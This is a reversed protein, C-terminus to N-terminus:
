RGTEVLTNDIDSWEDAEDTYHVPVGYDAVTFSGDSLRFTKTTQERLSTLEGVIFVASDDLAADDKEKINEQIGGPGTNSDDSDRLPAAWASSYTMQLIQSTVLVFVLLRRAGLFRKRAPNDRTDNM